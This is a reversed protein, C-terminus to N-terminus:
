KGERNVLPQEFSPPDIGLAKEMTLLARGIQKPGKYDHLSLQRHAERLAELAQDREAEVNRLDFFHQTADARMKLIEGPEGEAEVDLHMVADVLRGEDWTGNDFLEQWGVLTAVLSSHDPLQQDASV